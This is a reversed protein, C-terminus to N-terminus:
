LRSRAVALLHQALAASPATGAGVLALADGLQGHVLFLLELHAPMSGAGQSKVTTDIRFAATGKPSAIRKVSTSTTSAGGTVSAGNFLEGICAPTKRSSVAAFEQQAYKASPYISIADQVVQTGSKDQFQPSDVKPPASVILQTPVGICRALQPAGTFNGGGSSTSPSSTWGAPLDSLVVLAKRAQATQSGSAGALSATTVTCLAVTLGVAAARRRAVERFGGDRRHRM